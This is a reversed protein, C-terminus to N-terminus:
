EEGRRRREKDQEDLRRVHRVWNRVQFCGSKRILWKRYWAGMVIKRIAIESKQKLSRTERKRENKGKLGEQGLGSGEKGKNSVNEMLEDYEINGRVEGM